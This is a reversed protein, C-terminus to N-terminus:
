PPGAGHRCRSFGLMWSEGSESPLPPRRPGDAVLCVLWGRIRMAALEEKAALRRVFKLLKENATVM